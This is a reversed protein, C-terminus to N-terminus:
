RNCYRGKHWRHICFVPSLKRRKIEDRIQFVRGKNAAFNDDWVHIERAKFEKILIEVKEAVSQASLFRVRYGYINKAQCFTCRGLCRRSTHIAFTPSYMTDPYCYQKNSFLHQAPFPIEDLNEILPRDPTEILKGDKMYTLGLVGNPERGNEIREALEKITIEGEGRVVFDIAPETAFSRPMITAHIGGIIVKVARNAMKVTRAAQIASRLQPTTATIGVMNVSRSRIIEGLKDYGIKDFDMDLLSVDHGEKELVAGIYALGMHPQTITGIKGYVNRQSPNILLVKM